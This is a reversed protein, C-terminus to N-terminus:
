SARTDVERRSWFYTYLQTVVTFSGQHCGLTIKEGLDFAKDLLDKETAPFRPYNILTVEVGSEKGMTYVYDVKKLSICLGQLCYQQCIQHVQEYSGSVFIKIENTPVRSQNINSTSTM